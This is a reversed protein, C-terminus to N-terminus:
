ASTKKALSIPQPKQAHYGHTEGPVVKLKTLMQRGLPGQPMMGKVAHEIVREPHKELMEDLTTFKLGSPYGSYRTYVKATGKNGSLKVQKANIVLVFDGTDLHPTFIRKNKGRLVMAIRTALRGLIQDKADVVVWKRTSTVAAGNVAPLTTSNWAVKPTSPADSKAESKPTKVATAM